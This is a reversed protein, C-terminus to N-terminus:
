RFSSISSSSGNSCLAKGNVSPQKIPVAASHLRAVGSEPVAAYKSVSEDGNVQAMAHLPNAESLELTVIYFLFFYDSLIGLKFVVSGSLVYIKSSYFIISFFFVWISHIVHGLPIM